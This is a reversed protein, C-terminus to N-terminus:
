APTLQSLSRSVVHSSLFLASIDKGERATECYGLSEGTTWLRMRGWWRSRLTDPNVIDSVPFIRIQAAVNSEM